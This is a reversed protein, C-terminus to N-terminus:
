GVTREFTTLPDSRSRGTYRRWCYQVFDEITIIIPQSLFFNFEGGDKRTANIILYWHLMLSFFFTLYLQAYRSMLTGKRLGLFRTLRTASQRLMQLVFCM